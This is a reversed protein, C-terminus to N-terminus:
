SRGTPLAATATARAWADADLIEDLTPQPVTTHRGMTEGVIQWIGPFTLRGDLFAAVAVENAANLVAPLTGGSEGAHRALALAPFDATRPEEFTLQGLAAFDVPQLSSRTRAPWTVAYQIPFCMDSHSLQALVSGDVFEVM